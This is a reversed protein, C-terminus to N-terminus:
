LLILLIAGFLLIAGLLRRTMVGRGAELDRLGLLHGGTWAAVVSWISRSSYIVNAMTADRTWILSFFFCLIQAGFLVAGWWLSRRAVPPALFAAPDKWGYFMVSLLGATAFMVPPFAPRDFTQGWNQILVDALSYLAAGVLSVTVTLGVARGPRQKGSAILAIAASAALAALWLRASVPAQFVLVNIVTVFLIKTGLLPTALSVDGRSLATFTCFQGLFFIGGCLLPQWLPANPIEPRDLIWLPQVILGMGVNVAVNVQAASAGRELASKLFLSAATYLLAALFAFAAGHAITVDPAPLSTASIRRM